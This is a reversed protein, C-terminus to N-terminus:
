HDRRAPWSRQAVAIAPIGDTAPRTTSCLLEETNKVAIGDPYRLATARIGLDQTM